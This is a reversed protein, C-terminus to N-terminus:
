EVTDVRPGVAQCQEVFAASIQLNEAGSLAKAIMAESKQRVLQRFASVLFGSFLEVSWSEPIVRLVHSVDFWAGFRDLLEGTREVRHSIDEITLFESLLYDFLQAQEQHSATAQTHVTGSMPHFISSGGLLCYNIATDYDGLGHTLLRLAQQHRAQRGDLIIMEPVLERQFPEIRALIIAADYDFGGGHRGGLLQLLRLRNRWWAEGTGNDIIFQHYTPKPPRLARYSEYSQLLTSRATESTGLVSLVTDLYYSILDGAYQANQVKEAAISRGIQAFSVHKGFVLHELYEKVADPSERRLLEVVQAPEFKVRSGDDAFVQVGLKPNRKALWTGYEEVLRTDRIKLLYKRVENEGDVFEGGDDPEGELIRRWTSLVKRAMKRSQYLRSLVYLRRYKELLVLARDFCELGHDVVANLEARVTAAPAPGRPSHRDLQLLVLLLAADVSQFVEKENAISGFGKKRRWVMLYRKIMNLFSENLKTHDAELEEFTVQLTLSRQAVEILGNHIWIGEHGELVEERLPSILALIVRPDVGGELLIEETARKESTSIAIKSYLAVLANTFLLLSAKQRVYNLSLFELETGAEKNRISRIVEFVKRRDLPVSTDDATRELEALGISADLRLLLPNRVMWWIHNGCWIVVQSKTRSIRRTFNEEEQARVADSSHPRVPEQPGSPEVAKTVSPLSAEVAPDLIEDSSRTEKSPVAESLKLRVLRLKEGIEPLGIDNATATTRIGVQLNSIKVPSENSNEETFRSPLDILENGGGADTDVDWRQIEVVKRTGSLGDHEVIALVYGEQMEPITEARPELGATRKDIVIAEPYRSFELTGRVVDGELNVFIGVGPESPATGTTLLFETPAPSLIHPKLLATVATTHQAVLNQGGNDPRGPLAQKDPSSARFDPSRARRDTREPSAAPLPSAAGAVPEQIEIGPREFDRPRPSLQRQGVGTVFTGLSTSRGHGRVDGLGGNLGVRGSSISRAIAPEVRSIDEVQGGSAGAGGEELSSIPFLPIKRQQDVDLLAYSHADAVCAIGNRRSSSLCGPYEINKVLRPEDGIRVLRIRNKIAVM